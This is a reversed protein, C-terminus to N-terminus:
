GEGNAHFFPSFGFSTSAEVAPHGSGVGPRIQNGSPKENGPVRREGVRLSRNSGIAPGPKPGGAATTPAPCKGPLLLGYTFGNEDPHGATGAALRRLLDAAVVGDQHEGLIDQLDQYEKVANRTKHGLVPHVLEAAYRARKGAKRAKHLEEDDGHPGLGAALHRTVKKAAARVAGRLETARGAAVDTFPPDTVWRASERLLGLYRRGNLAKDLAAQHQLQEALLHQEIRAAVPGLILEEPLAAIAKAFRARQVERDRVEGLLAAYWSLEADFARARDPDVYDAFVRLTSRLRRTAVRTPHIMGGVGRRLGLDGTILAADQEMLYGRIVEGASRGRGGARSGDAAALIGLAKAVKNPSTSVTAGAGTLRAGALTLTDEDGAPGLEAEIERWSSLTAAGRGPAVADVRDDAIEVVLVDDANLVRHVTRDTRVTVIHRLAKGRRLGTVLTALEKPVTTHSGTPELRIETRADGTPVKLQWGTDTTGTRCRLTVRHGLLDHTETDFYVSDLGLTAREVRGGGPVLGSLDPLVFGQAADYKTEREAQESVM